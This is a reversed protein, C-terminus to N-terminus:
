MKMAIWLEVPMKMTGWKCIVFSVIVQWGRVINIIFHLYQQDQWKLSFFTKILKEWNKPHLMKRPRQNHPNWTGLVCYVHTIRWAFSEISLTQYEFTKWCTKGDSLSNNFERQFLIPIRRQLATTRSFPPYTSRLYYSWVDLWLWFM